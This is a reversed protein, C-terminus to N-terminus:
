ADYSSLDRELRAADEPTPPPPAPSPATRRRRSLRIAAVVLAALAAALGLIPLLWAILDFGHGSPTALVRPGYQAVLADKIQDKDKGEGILNRILAREREAQPSDSEALLTGCITCMVEDEVDPLSAHPEQAAAPVTLMAALLLAIVTAIAAPRIM